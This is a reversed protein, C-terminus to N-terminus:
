NILILQIFEKFLILEKNYDGKTKPKPTEEVILESTETNYRISMLISSIFIMKDTQVISIDKKM